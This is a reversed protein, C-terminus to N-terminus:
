KEGTNKLTVRVVAKATAPAERRVLDGLSKARGTTKANSGLAVQIAALITSKGSGNKGQSLLCANSYKSTM